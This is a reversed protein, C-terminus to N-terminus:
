PQNPFVVFTECFRQLIAAVEARTAHGGPDLIGGGKGNILGVASAWSLPQLAYISIANKDSFQDLDGRETVNYNRHDAYRYLIAAMQQRTVPDNAGFSGDDYGTAIKHWNAWVIPEAYYADRPVDSFEPYSTVGPSGSMRYLITVIMGRTTTGQPSFSTPGTGNMLGKECVYAVSDYFWDGEQVDTFSLTVPPKEPEQPSPKNVATVTVASDPMTFTYGGGGLATLRCEKKGYTVTPLELEYEAPVTTRLTVVTGETASSYDSSLTGHEPQRLTITYSPQETITLSGQIYHIEAQYNGGTPVEAGSAYIAVTGTRSPNPTSVYDLVPNKQMYDGNALGSITYDSDNLRPVPDGVRITRKSVTVTIRAQNVTIVKAESETKQYDEDGEKVAKIWLTGVQTAQLIGNKDIAGSGTGYDILYTVKGKGSGGKTKLPLTEGYTVNESPVVVELREQEKKKEPPVVENPKEPDDPNSPPDPKEQEPPLAAETVTVEIYQLDDLFEPKNDGNVDVNLIKAEIMVKGTESGSHLIGDQLICGCAKSSDHFIFAVNDAKVGKVLSFLELTKGGAPLEATCTVNAEVPSIGAGSSFTIEHCLLDYNGADPGSLSLGSVTVEKQAGAYPDNYHAEQYEVTVDDNPNLRNITFTPSALDTGDYVKYCENPIVKSVQAKVINFSVTKSGTFHGMGTVTVEHPGVNKGESYAVTYDENEALRIIESDLKWTVIIEPAHSRGTYPYRGGEAFSIDAAEISFRDAAHAHIPIAVTLLAILAAFCVCFMAATKKM